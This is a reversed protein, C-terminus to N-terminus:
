VTMLGHTVAFLSARARNSVGIKTYINEIHRSVTKPSIFLASAMEKNTLGRALLRLVEVERGTLGSPYARRRRVPHGAARLVGDVAEPDLRGARAEDRLWGAAEDTRYANRHPRPELKAHYADAAALLRGPQGLSEARLGRPYGSGDLREHHQAATAGLTALHPSAALMRDTLYAHLRVREREGASLEGPKDWVANSVGLRGIDHLLGARRVHSEEAAGLGLVTAANAAVDAVGRSHGLTFPSKLDIFDAIAELAVDLEGATLVRALGPEEAIVSDWTTVEELGEFLAEAHAAVAEVVHPAFQTGGRERAVAVAGDQGGMRHFVELVDAIHVIRSAVLLEEGECGNPVGKGDWREFTQALTARTDRDLGLQGALMDAAYWHNALMDKADRQGGVLFRASTRLREIPSGGAGLHAAIFMVPTVGTMDRLLSDGKLALDDGFWKAQEYADVHCGVWGILSVYYLSERADRELGLQDGLRLAILCQRMAHEMPQGMGLDAGLSLMAVLEALRVGTLASGGDSSM